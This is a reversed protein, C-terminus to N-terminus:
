IHCLTYISLHLLLVQLSDYFEESVNTYYLVIHM